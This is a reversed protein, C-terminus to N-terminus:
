RYRKVRTNRFFHSSKFTYKSFINVIEFAFLYSVDKMEYMVYRWIRSVRVRLYGMNLKIVKSVYEDVKM